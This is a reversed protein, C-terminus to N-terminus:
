ALLANQALKLEDELSQATEGKDAETGPKPEPPAEVIDTVRRELLLRQERDRNLSETLTQLAMEANHQGQMNAEMQTPLEGNHLRQYEQLKNENLVLQRRAEDLQTSLFESTGTALVERDRYSEDIFLSGLKETVRMAVRPDNAQFSVRFADGKIVQIDIDRTRMKEVIDEM